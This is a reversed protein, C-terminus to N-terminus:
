PRTVPLWMVIIMPATVMGRERAWIRWWERGAPLLYLVQVARPGHGPADAGPWAADPAPPRSQGSRIGLQRLCGTFRFPASLGGVPVAHGGQGEITKSVEDLKGPNRGVLILPGHGALKQATRYGYGSTPGTIIYAPRASNLPAM